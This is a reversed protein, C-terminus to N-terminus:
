SDPGIHIGGHNMGTNRCGSEATKPNSFDWIEYQLRQTMKESPEMTGYGMQTHTHTQFHSIGLIYTYMYIYIHM